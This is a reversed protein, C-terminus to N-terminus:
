STLSFEIPVLASAAIARGQLVYPRFVARRVAECAATDLREFGSSQQVSCEAAHGQVDIIVRLVVLGQERLRKSLPPYRVPPEKVYSVSELTPPQAPQVAPAAAVAVPSATAVPAAEEVPELSPIDTPLPIVLQPLSVVAELRASPLSEPPRSPVPAVLRVSLVEELLKPPVFGPLRVLAVIVAVHVIAVVAASM